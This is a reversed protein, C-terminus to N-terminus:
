QHVLKEEKHWFDVGEILMKFVELNSLIDIWLDRKFYHRLSDKIQYTVREETEHQSVCNFLMDAVLYWNIASFNRQIGFQIWSLRIFALELPKAFAFLVYAMLNLNEWVIFTNSDLDVWCNLYFSESKQNAVKPNHIERM